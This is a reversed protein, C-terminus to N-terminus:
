RSSPPAARQQRGVPALLGAVVDHRHQRGVLLVAVDEGVVLEAHEEHLEEDGAVLGGPVRDGAASTARACCGSCSSRRAASGRRSGVATSSTSRHVVGTVENRRVATCSVSSPPTACRGGAIRQQQEVRRGVAVLRLEAGGGAREVDAAGGVVVDGEAVPGVEAEARRQGAELQGHHQGAHDDRNERRSTAPATTRLPEDTIEPMREAGSVNAARHGAHRVLVERAVPRDDRAPRGADARGRAAVERRATRM